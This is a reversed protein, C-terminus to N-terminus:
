LELDFAREVEPEILMVVGLVSVRLMELRPPNGRWSCWEPSSAVVDVEV